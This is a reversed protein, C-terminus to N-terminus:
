VSVRPDQVVSSQEEYEISTTRNFENGSPDLRSGGQLFPNRENESAENAPKQIDEDSVDAKKHLKEMEEVSVLQEAHGLSKQDSANSTITGLFSIEQLSGTKPHEKRDPGSMPFDSNITANLLSEGQTPENKQGKESQSDVQQIGELQLDDMPVVGNEWLLKEDRHTEQDVDVSGLNQKSNPLSEEQSDQSAPKKEIHTVHFRGVSFVTTEGPHMRGKGEKSRGQRHLSHRKKQNCLICPAARTSGLHVTHHHSVGGEQSTRRPCLTSPVPVPTPVPMPVPVLLDDDKLMEKLVEVNAENQIICKVIKEVTDENLDEEEDSILIHLRLFGFGVPLRAPYCGLM